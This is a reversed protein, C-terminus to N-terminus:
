SSWPAATSALYYRDWTHLWGKNKRRDLAWELYESAEPTGTIEEAIADADVEWEVDCTNCRFLYSTAGFLCYQEHVGVYAPNACIWCPNQYVHWPSPDPKSSEDAALAAQRAQQAATMDTAWDALFGGQDASVVRPREAAGSAPTAVATM